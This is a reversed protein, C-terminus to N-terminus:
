GYRVRSEGADEPEHDVEAAKPNEFEPGRQERAEHKEPDPM